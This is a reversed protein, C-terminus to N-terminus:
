GRGYSLTNIYNSVKNINNRIRHLNSVTVELEYSAPHKTIYTHVSDIDSALRNYVIDIDSDMQEHLQNDSMVNALIDNLEVMRYYAMEYKESTMNEIIFDIYLKAKTVDITSLTNRIQDKVYEETKESRKEVVTMQYFTLSLGILTMVTGIYSIWSLVKDTDDFHLLCFLSMALALLTIVVILILAKNSNYVQMRFFHSITMNVLPLSVIKLM